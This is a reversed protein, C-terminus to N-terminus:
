KKGGAIAAAAIAQNAKIQEIQADLVQHKLSTGSKKAYWLVLPSAIFISSYTGLLIGITIPMAFELMAPNGLFLLVVMPALTTSSTLLTRSLTKCIAENMMERMSGGTGRQITERIRDFVIITDNISYGAIALLAGVHIVSLEQGFLVCLGPVILVDHFLAVIAGVAFAFEFRVILYLFIALLACFLAVSSQKKLEEGIVSGVTAVSTGSITDANWQKNIAGQIVPGSLEECRISVNESGNTPDTKRQIYYTGLDKGDPQKLTKFLAEFEKDAIKADKKLVVDVRGGGRFDIGFSHEGHMAIASFSIATVVVSAIIFKPAASLIDFVKDPVIHTTKLTTLVNKDIAWMFIVRTVILAGIMSSVLGIMLTVAFGKVLGGSIVVLIVASILTTINSDAIASFAKEYAAELAGTFTKGAEMEERLREYILVNADVAMGITLVIGAIGPMTLTFGFLAMSGFLVALNILLGVIAVIGALRYVILMFITTIVLGAVLVWKGQDIAAKGYASSVSSESLIKMPNQLPNSLLTALTDAEQQSFGKSGGSIEARGGFQKAQLVPASHIQGDVIIAMQKQYHAAALEDFLKAGASDFQLSVKNGEADVTRFARSVYKGEIDPTDRVLESRDIVSGDKANLPKSYPMEIWGPEKIGGRAKIQELKAQSDPHVRRFELHAVQQIKTRVDKIEEDSIGPMQIVIRDTGEPQLSVDKEGNPSLRRLLIDIAQQVDSSTVAKPTGDDNKGPELKVIFESGGQLDIGKQLGMTKVTYIAAFATVAVLITGVWRKTKHAATGVYVLLMMLISAGVFFTAFPNM